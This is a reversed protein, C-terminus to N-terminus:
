SKIEEQQDMPSELGLDNCVVELDKKIAFWNKNVHASVWVEDAKFKLWIRRHNWYLSQSVGIMFIIGGIIIIGLTHDKRVTLGTVNKTEIGSFEMKYKNKGLAFPEINKQIAIFSVEGDETDPAFMKFIFAPNRPVNTLTSPEDNDNFIFDPFYQVLEVHYGNGLDYSKEPNFLDITIEGFSKETEKETMKLKMKEFQNLRFDVQYLAYDDFKLPYNVQIAYDKVKELEPKVGPTVDGAEYLTVNSQYNKVVTNGVRDLAKEFKKDEEQDYTDLIFQDLELYYEKNTGPIQETEGEKVWMVEDLYMGPFFRLMAGILFIILGTHNVYAGWRSFHGKEALLSNNERRVKYRKKTLSEKAKDILSEDTQKSTIGFIRQRTMFNDHKNVRQNKFSKYLPVGRDLSAAIISIGILGLLLIYWWSGYLNHFGLLYYIQGVVGYEDKYFLDTEDSPVTAPIYIEQPLLTGIASAVLTIFILWVGVKVSSFFNWIKDVITKNYTKSRIASGEYKMDLISTSEGETLPKGCSQCITTGHPNVHSCECKHKEM